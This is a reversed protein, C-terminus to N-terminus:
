TERHLQKVLEAEAEKVRDPPAKFDTLVNCLMGADVQREMFAAAKEFTDTRLRGVHREHVDGAWVDVQYPM